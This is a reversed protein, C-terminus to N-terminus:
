STAAPSASAATESFHPAPIHHPQRAAPALSSLLQVFAPAQAPISYREAALQRGNDGLRQRLKPDSALREISDAWEGATSALFGTEGHVIMEAHAGVPNAVVPLGAAMYQLVKLGCKGRSWDDDQLWSIGIDAAALEQRETKASWPIPAVAVGADEPFVDSIMRLELGPLRDGAAALLDRARTVYPVTSRQGIWVLKAASGRQQHRAVPSREVDVCTPIVRVQRAGAIQRATGALFPNGAIVTDAARVTARFQRQRTWSQPGKKSLGDRLFIADDFDYVLSRSWRRLLALQWSPLLKRQLLVVDADQCSRLQRVRQVIGHALPMAEISWGAAALAPAFAGVRYRYCVHDAGATLALLKM